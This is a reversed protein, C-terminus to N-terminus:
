KNEKKARTKGIKKLEKEKAKEILKKADARGQAITDTELDILWTIKINLALWENFNTYDKNANPKRKPTDYEWTFINSLADLDREFPKIIRDDVHRDKSKIVNEYRPLSLCNEYLNRVSIITEKNEVNRRKHYIIERGLHYSYPNRRENTRLLEKPLNLLYLRNSILKNAFEKRMEFFAIGNVVGNHNAGLGVNIFDGKNGKNITYKVSDLIKFDIKTRERLDKLGDKTTSKGEIEALEKLPIALIPNTTFEQTTAQSTTDIVKTLQAMLITILKSASQPVLSGKYTTKSIFDELESINEITVVYKSKKDIFTTAQNFMNVQKPEELKNQLQRVDENFTSLMLSNSKEIPKARTEKKVVLDALTEYIKEDKKNIM